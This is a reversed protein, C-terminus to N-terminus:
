CVLNITADSLIGDLITPHHALFIVLNRRDDQTQRRLRTRSNPAINPRTLQCRNGEKGRQEAHHHLLEQALNCPIRLWFGLRVTSPYM